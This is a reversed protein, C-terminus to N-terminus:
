SEVQSELINSLESEYRMRKRELYEEFREKDYEAKNRELAKQIRLVDELDMQPNAEIDLMIM